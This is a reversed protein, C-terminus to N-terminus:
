LKGEDLWRSILTESATEDGRSMRDILQSDANTETNTATQTQLTASKQVSESVQAQAKGKSQYSKLKGLVKQAAADLNGNGGRTVDNLRAAHVLERLDKDQKIEPHKQELDQWARQEQSQFAIKQEVSQMVSTYFKDPDIYGDEDPQIQPQPQAMFQSIDVDQYDNQYPEEVQNSSAVPPTEYAQDATEQTQPTQETETQQSTHETQQTQQEMAEEAPPAVQQTADNNEDM